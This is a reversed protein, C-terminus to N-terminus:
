RPIEQCTPVELHHLASMSLELNGERECGEVSPAHGPSDSEPWFAVQNWHDGTATIVRQPSSCGPVVQLLAASARPMELLCLPEKAREVFGGLRVM